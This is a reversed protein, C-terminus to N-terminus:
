CNSQIDWKQKTNTKKWAQKSIVSNAPDWHKDNMLNKFIKSM